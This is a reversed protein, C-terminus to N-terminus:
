VNKNGGACVDKIGIIEKVNLNGSVDINADVIYDYIEYDVNEIGLLSIPIFLTLFIIIIFIKKM